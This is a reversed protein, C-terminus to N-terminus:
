LRNRSAGVAQLLPELAIADEKALVKSLSDIRNVVEGFLEKHRTTGLSPEEPLTILPVSPCADLLARLRAIRRSLKASGMEMAKQTRYQGYAATAAAATAVFEVAPVWTGLSESAYLQYLALGGITSLAASIGLRASIDLSKSVIFLKFFAVGLFM